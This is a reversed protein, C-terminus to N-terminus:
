YDNSLLVSIQTAGGRFNNLIDRHVNTCLKMSKDGQSCNKCWNGQSDARILRLYLDILGIANNEHKSLFFL